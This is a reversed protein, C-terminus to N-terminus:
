FDCRFGLFGEVEEMQGMGGLLQHFIRIPYGAAPLFSRPFVDEVLLSRHKNVTDQSLHELHMYKPMLHKPGILVLQPRQPLQIDLQDISITGRERNVGKRRQIDLNQYARWAEVTLSAAGVFDEGEEGVGVRWGWVEVVGEGGEM